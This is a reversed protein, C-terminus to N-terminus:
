ECPVVEGASDEVAGFWVDAYEGYIGIGISKWKMNKWISKNMIVDNHGPSKKWGNLIDKAFAEPSSYSYTSYFSIEFGDAQYNTLERPKDWMCKAKKHDPTYCCSSWSANKSWSHMNCRGGDKFNDTQDKAHTHAVFCLSASLKIETLGKQARYENILKYLEIETQTLCIEPLPKVAIEKQAVAKAFFLVLILCVALLRIM